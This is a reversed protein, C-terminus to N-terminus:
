RQIKDKPTYEAYGNARAPTDKRLHWESFLRFIHPALRPGLMQRPYVAVSMHSKGKWGFDVRGRRALIGPENAVAFLQGSIVPGGPNCQKTHIKMRVLHQRAIPKTNFQMAGSPHDIPLYAGLHK